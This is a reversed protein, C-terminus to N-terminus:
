RYLLGVLADWGPEEDQEVVVYDGTALLYRKVREAEKRLRGAEEVM